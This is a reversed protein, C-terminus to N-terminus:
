YGQAPPATSAAGASLGRLSAIHNALARAEASENIEDVFLDCLVILLVPLPYQKWYGITDYGAEHHVPDGEYAQAIRHVAIDENALIEAEALTSLAAHFEGHPPLQLKIVIDQM